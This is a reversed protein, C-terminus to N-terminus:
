VHRDVKGGAVLSTLSEALAGITFREEIGSAVSMRELERPERLFSRIIQAIAEGSLEDLLRGNRGHTVVDGCFHSAIIPLKWAQAELQTLGFGDSFTPFLFLDAWQYQQMAESRPVPGLFRVMPHRALQEPLPVQIPGVIRFEVPQGALLPIADFILSIGKRLSVQGLFLVRLPRASSFAAPYTRYFPIGAQSQEYALPVIHLKEDPVGATVLAGRSWASNVVIHDALRCEERWRDWYDSPAPVWGSDYGNMGRYLGGIVQEDASGADIQGLVTTWGANKAFLFVERAAYSYSFVVAASGPNREKWRQLERLAERGFWRNRALVRDWGQWRVRAAAEFALAHWQMAAVHASHLESHYRERGTASPL